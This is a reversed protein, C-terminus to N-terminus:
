DQPCNPPPNWTARIVKPEGLKEDRVVKDPARNSEKPDNSKEHENAAEPPRKAREADPNTKQPLHEPM